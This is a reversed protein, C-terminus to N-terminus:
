HVGGVGLLLLGPSNGAAAAGKYTGLVGSAIANASTLTVGVGTTSSTVLHALVGRTGTIGSGAQGGNTPITFSSDVSTPTSTGSGDLNWVAIAIEDAQALTPTATIQHTTATSGAEGQSTDFCNTTAQGSIETAFISAISANGWTFGYTTSGGAINCNYYQRTCGDAGTVEAPGLTLTDGGGSQTIAGGSEDSACSNSSIFTVVAGHAATTTLTVSVTTASVTTQGFATQVHASTAGVPVAAALLLM